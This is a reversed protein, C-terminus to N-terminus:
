LEDTQETDSALAELLRIAKDALVGHLVAAESAPQKKLWEADGFTEMQKTLTILSKKLYELLLEGIENKVTPCTDFQSADGSKDRWAIVTTRPVQYERAVSSVSQGTLLAAMVAAKVEPGYEQRDAM